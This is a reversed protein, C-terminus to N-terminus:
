IKVWLSSMQDDNKPCSKKVELLSALNSEKNLNNGDNTKGFEVLKSLLCFLRLHGVRWWFGIVKRPIYSAWPYHVQVLKYLIVGRANACILSTSRPVNGTLSKLEDKSTFYIVFIYLTVIFVLLALVFASSICGIFLRYLFCFVSFNVHFRPKVVRM